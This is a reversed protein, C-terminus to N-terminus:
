SRERARRRRRISTPSISTSRTSAATRSGHRSRRSRTGQLPALPARYADFDVPLRIADPALRAAKMLGMGSHVGLARAEYTATTAVGRGVYDRLTTFAHARADARRRQAPRRRDGRGQRAARSLAAARRVRLVCGHRSPRHPAPPRDRPGLLPTFARRGAANSSARFRSRASWAHALGCPPGLGRPLIRTM